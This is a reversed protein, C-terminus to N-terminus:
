GRGRAALIATVLQEPVDDPVAGEPEAYAVRGAEKALRYSELYAVCDPCIALHADFTEREGAELEDDVYAMLFEILERCTM